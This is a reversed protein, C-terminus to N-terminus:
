SAYIINLLGKGSSYLYEHAEAVFGAEVPNQHLYNLRQNLLEYNSLEIPHNNQQWFQYDKNNANKKGARKFMWLLWERRSECSYEQICKILQKSTHRKMDRIIDSLSATETSIILHVHSPM